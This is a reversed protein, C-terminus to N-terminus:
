KMKLNNLNGEVKLSEPVIAMIYGTEHYSEQIMNWTHKGLINFFFITTIPSSHWTKRVIFLVLLM